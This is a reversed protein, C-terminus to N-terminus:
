KLTMGSVDIQMSLRMRVGISHGGSIREAYNMIGESVLCHRAGGIKKATKPGNERWEESDNVENGRGLPVVRRCSNIGERRTGGGELCVVKRKIEWRGKPRHGEDGERVGSRQGEHRFRLRGSGGRLARAASTTSPTSPITSSGTAAATTAGTLTFCGRLRRIARTPAGFGPAGRGASPAIFLVAAALFGLGRGGRWGACQGLRFLSRGRRRIVGVIALHAEDTGGGDLMGGDRRAIVAGTMDTREAEPSQVLIFGTGM